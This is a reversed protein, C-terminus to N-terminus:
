YNYRKGRSRMKQWYWIYEYNGTLYDMCWIAQANQSLPKFTRVTLTKLEENQFAYYHVETAIGLRNCLMNSLSTRLVGTAPYIHNVEAQIYLAVNKKM